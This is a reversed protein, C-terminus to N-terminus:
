SPQREGDGRLYKAVLVLADDHDKRHKALIRDAMRQVDDDRIAADAFDPSIGDTVIILTDNPHLPLVEPRVAPLNYGLVGNRLLARQVATGSRLLAAEVNGVGIWTLTGNHLDVYALTMVAGRSGKLEQHCRVLLALPSELGHQELTRVAAAAAAAAEDGHGAGDVVAILVGAPSSRLLYRDGSLRQGPVAAEAVAWTLRDQLRGSAVTPGSM